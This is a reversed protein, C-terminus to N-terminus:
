TQPQGLHTSTVLQLFQEMLVIEVIEFPKVRPVDHNGLPDPHLAHETAQFISFDSRTGWVRRGNVFASIEKIVVVLTGDKM